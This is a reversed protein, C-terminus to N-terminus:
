VTEQFAAELERALKDPTDLPPRCTRGLCVQAAAGSAPISMGALEPILGSLRDRQATDAVRLMGHGLGGKQRATEIMRATEASKDSGSIVMHVHRTRSIIVATLLYPAMKPFHAIQGAASRFIHEATTEFDELGTIRSLRVLNLAAVSAASPTVNDTVDKMKFALFRDHGDPTLYVAGSAPDVFRDTFQGMLQIAWQLHWPQFGAEYLDILGQGLFAYDDAM